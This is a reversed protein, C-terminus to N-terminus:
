FAISRFPDSDGLLVRPVRCVQSALVITQGGLIWNHYRHATLEVLLSDLSILFIEVDAFEAVIDTYICPIQQVLQFNLGDTAGMAKEGEHRASSRRGCHSDGGGAGRIRLRIQCLRRDRRGVLPVPEIYQGTPTCNLAFHVLEDPSEADGREVMAEEMGVVGDENLAM